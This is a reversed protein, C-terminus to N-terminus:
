RRRSHGAGPLGQEPDRARGEDSTGFIGLACGAARYLDPLREYEAWRSTVCTRPGDKSCRTSSAAASSASSSTRACRRRARPHDRARAAPDAQRRLARHVRRGAARGTAFLRDEAGVFCVAVREAPLDSRTRSTARTRPPTPSSSIRRGFRPGTSWRATSARSSGTQVRARSRRGDHGRAVRAPQLRGPARPRSTAGRPHRRARPLRRDAVDSTRPRALDCPAGAARALRASTRAGLSLKHRRGEWVPM